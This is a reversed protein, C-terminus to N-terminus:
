SGGIGLQAVTVNVATGRTISTGKAIQQTLVKDRKSPDANQVKEVNFSGNWGLARLKQEAEKQELGVLDPM